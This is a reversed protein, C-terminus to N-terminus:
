NAGGDAQARCRAAAERLLEALMQEATDSM